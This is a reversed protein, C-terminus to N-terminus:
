GEDLHRRAAAFKAWLTRESMGPRDGFHTTLANVIAEQSEFSPHPVGDPANGLLLALLGGVINLYTRESRAGLPAQGDQTRVDKSAALAQLEARLDSWARVRDALRLKLAERDAILAQVADASVGPHLQREFADFLFEPRQDPYFRAMWAKLDVHRVTVEPHSLLAPDDCTIGRLGYRLEGNVMADRIRDTNLRLQPWGPIDAEQPLVGESALELIRSELALLGTWRTAAEIPRYFVKVLDEPQDSKGSSSM